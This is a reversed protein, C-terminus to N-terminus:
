PDHRNPCSPKRIVVRASMWGNPAAPNLAAVLQL